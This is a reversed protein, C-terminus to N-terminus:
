ILFGPTAAGPKKTAHGCPVGDVAKTLLAYCWKVLGDLLLFNFYYLTGAIWM